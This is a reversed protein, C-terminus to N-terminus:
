KLIIRGDVGLDQFHDRERLDGWWFGYADRREGVRAVHGVCRKKKQHGLYHKNVM